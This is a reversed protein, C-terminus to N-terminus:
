ASASEELMEEELLDIDVTDPAAPLEIVVELAPEVSEDPRQTPNEETLFRFGVGRVTVIRRRGEAEALKARLRGVQVDLSKTDRATGWLERVLEDRTVVLGAKRMLLEAIDFERRPMIVRVGAVSIERSARDLVIPGIVIVDSLSPEDRPVVRRLMARVRAVLEHTGVPESVYIDAGANFGSVVEREEYRGSYVMIPATTAARLAGCLQLGPRDLTEVELVVLDPRRREVHELTETAGSTTVVDFGELRFLASARADAREEIVLLRAM